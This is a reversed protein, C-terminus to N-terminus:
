QCLLVTVVLIRIITDSGRASIIHSDDIQACISVAQECGCGCLVGVCVWVCGSSMAYCIVCWVILILICELLFVCLHVCACLTGSM